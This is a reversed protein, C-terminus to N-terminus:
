NKSCSDSKGVAAAGNVNRGVSYLPELKEVVQSIATMKKVAALRTPVPHHNVTTLIQVGSIVLSAPCTWTHRNTM